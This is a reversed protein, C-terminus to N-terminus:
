QLESIRRVMNKFQQGNLRDQKNRPIRTKIGYEIVDNEKTLIIYLNKAFLGV